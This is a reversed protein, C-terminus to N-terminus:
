GCATRYPTSRCLVFYYQGGIDTAVALSKTIYVFRRFYFVGPCVHLLCSMFGALFEAEALFTEVSMHHGWGDHRVAAM